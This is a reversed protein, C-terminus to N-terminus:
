ISDIITRAQAHVGQAFEFFEHADRLTPKGNPLLGLNGPYRSEVYLNNLSELMEENEMQFDKGLKDRLTLLDHNRVAPQNLFELIAKFSKEVAQQSHFAALHTLHIDAAISAILRLDDGAAKLWELAMAKSM